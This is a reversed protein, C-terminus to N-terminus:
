GVGRRTSHLWALSVPVHQGAGLLPVAQGDLTPLTAQADGPLLLWLGPCRGPRGVEDRVQEILGMQRYRALLGPHVLLVTRTSALLEDRVFPVARKVLLQLYEWDESGPVADAELVVPWEIGEREALGRLHKLFLADLSGRQLPFRALLAAECRNVLAPRVTLVLFQGHRRASELREEFNHADAADPSDKPRLSGSVTTLRSSLPSASVSSLPLTVGPRRYCDAVGDWFLDLGVERLLTDLEPRGPLPDAEPYRSAIRQRVEDVKIGDGPSLGTLAGLGLRLARGAPMHRRYIEQGSSLAALAGVAVALRRLRESTM